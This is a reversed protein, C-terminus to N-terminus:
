RHYVLVIERLRCVLVEMTVVHEVLCDGESRSHVFCIELSLIRISGKHVRLEVRADEDIRPLVLASELHISLHYIQLKM